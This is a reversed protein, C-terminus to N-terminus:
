PDLGAVRPEPGRVCSPCLGHNFRADTREALFRELLIWHGGGDQICKCRACIKVVEGLPRRSTLAERLQAVLRERDAEARARQTVDLGIGIVGIVEHDDDFLPEVHCEATVGQFSFEYSQSGGRVARRHAQIPALDPDESRFYEYMTSGVLQDADLGLHKLAGGVCSTCRFDLDTTWFIVPLQELLLRLGTEYNARLEANRRRLREVEALLAERSERM